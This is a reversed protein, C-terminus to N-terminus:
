CCHRVCYTESTTNKMLKEVCLCSFLLCDSTESVVCSLQYGWQLRSRAQGIRVCSVVCSHLSEPESVTEIVPKDTDQTASDRLSRSLRLM